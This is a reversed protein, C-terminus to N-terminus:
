QKREMIFMRDRMGHWVPIDFACLIIWDKSIIEHFEDDATCGGELEGVYVLNRGEFKKLCNAALLDAYPPWCLFLCDPDFGLKEKTVYDPGDGVFVPGWPNKPYQSDVCFIIGGVQHVLSGWYGNGAGIEVIKGMSAIQCIAGEDPIAWAYQQVFKDRSTIPWKRESKDWVHVWGAVPNEHFSKGFGGRWPDPACYCGLELDNLYPNFFEHGQLKAAVRAAILDNQTSM